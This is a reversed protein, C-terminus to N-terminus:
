SAELTHEVAARRRRDYAIERISWETTEPKPFLDAVREHRAEREARTREILRLVPSAIDEDRPAFGRSPESGPPKRAAAPEPEERPPSPVEHIPLAGTEPATVEARMSTERAPEM